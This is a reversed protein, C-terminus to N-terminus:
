KREKQPEPHDIAHQAPHKKRSKSNDACVDSKGLAYQQPNDVYSPGSAAMANAQSLLECSARCIPGSNVPSYVLSYMETMCQYTRVTYEREIRDIAGLWQIRLETTNIKESAPLRTESQVPASKTCGWLGMLLALTLFRTM